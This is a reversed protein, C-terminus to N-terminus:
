AYASLATFYLGLTPLALGLAILVAKGTSQGAAKAIWAVTFGLNVTLSLALLLALLETTTM